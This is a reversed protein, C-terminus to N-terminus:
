EELNKIKKIAFDIFKKSINEKPNGSKLLYAKYEVLTEKFISDDEIKDSCNTRCRRVVTAPINKAIHDPHCSKPSLNQHTDTDKSYVSPVLLFQKEESEKSINVVNVKTDLFKVEEGICEISFKIKDKEINENM